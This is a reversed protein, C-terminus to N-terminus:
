LPPLQGDDLWAQISDQEAQTLCEPNGSDLEPDGSCGSGRPMAGSQIRVLTAAGKTMGSITYSEQQSDAYAQALDPNGINHGGSGLTTHCTDCKAQFLPYVSDFTVLTPDADPLVNADSLNADPSANADSGADSLIPGDPSVSSDSVSGVSSDPEAPDDNGCATFLIVLAICSGLGPKSVIRM